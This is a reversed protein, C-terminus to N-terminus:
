AARLRELAQVTELVELLFEGVQLELDAIVAEDRELRKVFLALDEPMRPDYSVFDCWQRGTCAMQWNMQTVYKGPISQTLLVDIHQATNPCKLEVLGDDAVLGDPSAHTGALRPHPVIAIETVDVGMMFSYAARAEAETDIGWQMAANVYTEQPAGTLIEAVLRSRVNARSAGWGSRTKALAEHVASAGLSGCRAQLWEQSRQEM